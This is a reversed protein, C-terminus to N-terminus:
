FYQVGSRLRIESLRNRKQFKINFIKNEKDDIPWNEEIIKEIKNLEEISKANEISIYGAIGLSFPGGLICKQGLDKNEIMIELKNGKIIVSNINDKEATTRVLEFPIKSIKDFNAYSEKVSIDYGNRILRIILREAECINSLKRYPKSKLEFSGNFYTGFYFEKKM